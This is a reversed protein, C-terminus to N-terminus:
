ESFGDSEELGTDGSWADHEPKMREVKFSSLDDYIRTSPIKSVTEAEHRWTLHVVAVRGTGDELRFLVDDRDQRCGLATMTLGFLSHGPSLELGLEREFNSRYVTELPHWPVLWDFDFM